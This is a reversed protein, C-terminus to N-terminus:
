SHKEWCTYLLFEDRVFEFKNLKDIEEKTYEELRLGNMFCYDDSFEFLNKSAPKFNYFNIIYKLLALNRRLPFQYYNYSGKFFLDLQPLFLKYIAAFRKKNKFNYALFKLAKKDIEQFVFYFYTAPITTRHLENAAEVVKDFNKLSPHIFLAIKKITEPKNLKKLCEIDIYNESNLYLEIVNAKGAALNWVKNIVDSNFNYLRFFKFQNSMEELNEPRLGLKNIETIFDEKHPINILPHKKTIILDGDQEKFTYELKHICAFLKMESDLRIKFKPLLCNRIVFQEDPNEPYKKNEEACYEYFELLKDTYGICVGANLNYKGFWRGKVNKDNKIKINPHRYRSANYLINCKFKLFKEIFEKDLDATFLVDSYDTVLAYKTKCERLCEAIYKMKDTMIWEEKEFATKNIIVKDQPLQKTLFSKYYYPKNVISIVTIDDDIKVTKDKYFEQAKRQQFYAKSPFHAIYIKNNNYKM